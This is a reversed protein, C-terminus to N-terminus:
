GGRLSAGTQALREEAVHPAPPTPHASPQETAAPVKHLILWGACLDELTRTRAHESRGGADRPPLQYFCCQGAATRIRRAGRGTEWRSLEGTGLRM